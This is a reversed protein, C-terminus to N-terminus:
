GLRDPNIWDYKEFYGAVECTFKFSHRWCNGFLKPGEIHALFKNKKQLEEITGVLNM